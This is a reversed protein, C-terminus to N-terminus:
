KEPLIQSNMRKEHSSCYQKEKSKKGCCRQRIKGRLFMYQCRDEDELNCGGSERVESFTFQDSLIENLEGLIAHCESLDQCIIKGNSSRICINKNGVSSNLTMMIESSPSPLIKLLFDEITDQAVYDGPHKYRVYLVKEHDALLPYITSLQYEPSIKFTFIIPVPM